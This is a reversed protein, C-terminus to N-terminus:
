YGRIKQRSRKLDGQRTKTDLRKRASARTPRTKIRAKPEVLVSAIMEALRSMAAQRNKLQSRTDQAKITIVGDQGIRHDNLALLRQRVREPLTSAGIDFKLQVATAVKNVNQGGAGQSRIFSLQIEHDPIILHKVRV